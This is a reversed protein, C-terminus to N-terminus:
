GGGPLGCLERCPMFELAPETSQCRMAGVTATHTSVHVGRGEARQKETRQERGETGRDRQGEARQGETGRGGGAGKGGCLTSVTRSHTARGGACRGDRIVRYKSSGSWLPCWPPGSVGRMGAASARTPRATPRRRLPSSSM